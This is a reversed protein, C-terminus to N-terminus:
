RSNNTELETLMRRATSRAIQVAFNTGRDWPYVQSMSAYYLGALPTRVAPINRSHNILPVPQAYSTRFLWSGRVWEASFAPNIRQLAPIFRQLLEEQSMQFYEHLPDLYDGCYIIHDGGFYEPKVFNTHEVLALFPFGASKPINYWYYGEKSLQQNVALVLVVAGLHKLNLLSKLYSEPLSPAMKAMLGPSVTVLCLDFDEQGERLYLTLGGDPKAVIERVPMNLQITVGRHRLSDALANNFAQFGGRFTVLRTSRAKFRAWFWAMTIDKYYAGFKGVLLPEFLTSYVKDGYAWRMWEHSTQGELAQWRALYRLYATVLGFRAMDFFTFGPFTLAALPSDLPHFRGEYYVVTKPHPVVLHDKLGLEEILEFMDRDSTFWHHYFREVSWDWHPQKFGGALGGVSDASEYIIVQHGAKVFDHAAAMGGVGAGVIAIKM